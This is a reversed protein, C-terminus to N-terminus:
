RFVRANEFVRCWPSVGQSTNDPQSECYSQLMLGARAAPATGGRAAPSKRRRDEASGRCDEASGRRDKAGGRGDQPIRRGVPLRREKRGAPMTAASANTRRGSGSAWRRWSSAATATWPCDKTDARRMSTASSKCRACAKRRAYLPVGAQHYEKVRTVLDNRRDGPSTIEIVLLIRAKEQAVYFTKWNRQRRVRDFVSIDPGHPEIGAVGWDVRSNMLVLGSAPVRARLVDRLYVCDDNHANAELPYDQDTPHLLAERPMDTAVWEKKGNGLSRRVYRVGYRFRGNRVKSM